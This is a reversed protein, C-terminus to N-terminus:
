KGADPHIGTYWEVSSRRLDENLEILSEIKWCILAITIIIFVNRLTNKM